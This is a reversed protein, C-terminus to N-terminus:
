PIISALDFIKVPNTNSKRVLILSDDALTASQQQGTIIGSTESTVETSYTDADIAIVGGFIPDTTWFYDRTSDYLFFSPDKVKRTSRTTNQTTGFSISTRNFTVGDIIDLGSSANVNKDVSNSKRYPVYWKNKSAVYIPQPTDREKLYGTNLNGDDVAKNPDTAKDLKFIYYDTQLERTLLIYGAPGPIAWRTSSIITGTSKKLYSEFTLDDGDFLHGRNNDGSDNGNTSIVLNSTREHAIKTFDGNALNNNINSAEITPPNVSIDYKIIGAGGDGGQVFLFDDVDDLAMFGSNIYNGVSKQKAPLWQTSFSSGSYHKTTDASGTINALETTWNPINFNGYTENNSNHNNETNFFLKNTSPSYLVGLAKPTPAVPSQYIFLTALEQFLQPYNTYYGNLILWNYAISPDSVEDLGSRGPLRNFWFLFELDSETDTGWFRVSGIDGEPTSTPHDMTPVDKGIIYRNDEDPGMWWKVGGPNGSYNPGGNVDNLNGYALDGSQSTNPILSGPNYAFPRTNAM